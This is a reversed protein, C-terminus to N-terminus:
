GRRASDERASSPLDGFIFNIPPSSDKPSSNPTQQEFVRATAGEPRDAQEDSCPPARAGDLVELQSYSSACPGKQSRDTVCLFLSPVRECNILFEPGKKCLRWPAAARPRKEEKSKPRQAPDPGTRNIM